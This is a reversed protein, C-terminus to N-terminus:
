PEKSSQVAYVALMLWASLFALGGFPTIMGLWKAGTISMLYLSGSFLIIGALMVWGAWHLLAAGAQGRAFLAILGIGLAHWMQYDVATQYIAKSEPPLVARLGHAGFAGFAVGLFACTASVLLLRSNM